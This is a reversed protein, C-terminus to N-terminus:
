RRTVDMFDDSSATKWPTDDREPHVRKSSVSPQLDRSSDRVLGLNSSPTIVPNATLDGSYPSGNQFQNTFRSKGMEPSLEYSQNNQFNGNLLLSSPTKNVDKLPSTNLPRVRRVSKDGVGLKFNKSISVQPKLGIEANHFLSGGGLQSHYNDFLGDGKLPTEFSSQNWTSTHDTWPAISSDNSAPILLSSSKSNHVEPFGSKAPMEVEHDTTNVTFEPLKGAMIQQRQVEPLLAM